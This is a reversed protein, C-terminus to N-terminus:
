SEVFEGKSTIGYLGTIEPLGHILALEHCRKKARQWADGAIDHKGFLLIAPTKSAETALNQLEKIEDKTAFVGTDKM